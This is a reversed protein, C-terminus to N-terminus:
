PNCPNLIHKKRDNTFIKRRIEPKKGFNFLLGVEINTARLYNILQYEHEQVLIEVAKLELIVQQNVVTDAYYDGVPSYHYFVQIRKQRECYFGRESLEIIMANQYVKELFRFGLEYYVDYFVKIIKDTLSGYIM